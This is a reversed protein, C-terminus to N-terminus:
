LSGLIEFGDFHKKYEGAGGLYLYKYGWQKFVACEHKLSNIGLRLEPNVYDWAFQVCEANESDFKKILSFAVLKDNHMYGILENSPDSYESAFIPM